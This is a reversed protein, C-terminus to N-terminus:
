HYDSLSLELLTSTEKCEGSNATLSTALKVRPQELPCVAIVNYATAFILVKKM